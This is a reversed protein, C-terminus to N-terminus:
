SKNLPKQVSSIYNAFHFYLIDFLYEIKSILDNFWFDYIVFLHSRMSTVITTNLDIHYVSIIINNM